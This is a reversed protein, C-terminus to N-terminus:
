GWTTAPVSFYGQLMTVGSADQVQIAIRGSVTGDGKVGERPGTTEDVVFSGGSVALPARGPLTLTSAQPQGYGSGRGGGSPQVAVERGHLAALNAEYDVHVDRPFEGVLLVGPGRMEFSEPYAEDEVLFIDMMELPLSVEEQGVILRLESTLKGAEGAQPAEDRGACGALATVALLSLCAASRRMLASALGHHAGEM